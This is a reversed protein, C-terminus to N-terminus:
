IITRQCAIAPPSIAQRFQKPALCASPERGECFEGEVDEENEETDQEVDSQYYVPINSFATECVYSFQSQQCGSEYPINGHGTTMMQESFPLDGQDLNGVMHEDSIDKENPRAFGGVMTGFGAKGGVHRDITSMQGIANTTPKNKLQQLMIEATMQCIAEIYPLMPSTQSCTESSTKTQSECTTRYNRRYNRKLQGDTNGNICTYKYQVNDADPTPSHKPCLIHVENCIYQLEADVVNNAGQKHEHTTSQGEINSQCIAMPHYVQETGELSKNKFNMYKKLRTDPSLKPIQEQEIQPLYQEVQKVNSRAKVDFYSNENNKQLGSVPNEMSDKQYESIFLPNDNCQKMYMSETHFEMLVDGTNYIIEKTQRHSAPTLSKNKATENNRTYSDDEYIVQHISVTEVGLSWTSESNENRKWMDDTTTFANRGTKCNEYDHVCTFSASTNRESGRICEYETFLSGMLLRCFCSCTVVNLFSM